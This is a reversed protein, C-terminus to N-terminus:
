YIGTTSSSRQGAQNPSRHYSLTDQDSYKFAAKSIWRSLLAGLIVYPIQADVLQAPSFDILPHQLAYDLDIM